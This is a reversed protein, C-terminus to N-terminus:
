LRSVAMVALTGFALAIAAASSLVLLLDRDIITLRLGLVQTKFFKM